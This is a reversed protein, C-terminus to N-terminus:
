TMASVCEMCLNPAGLRPQESRVRGGFPALTPQMRWLQRRILSLEAAYSNWPLARALIRGAGRNV